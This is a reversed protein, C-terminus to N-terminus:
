TPPGTALVMSLYEEQDDKEAGDHAAMHRPPAAVAAFQHPPHQRTSLWNRWQIRAARYATIRTTKEQDLRHRDAINDLTLETPAVHGHTRTILGVRALEALTDYVTSPATHAAAVLDAPRRISTRTLLEYIRRHHQGLVTWAPHVDTVLPRGPEDPTPDTVDPTTLAYRDAYLGTGKGILLIPAGPTDRLRRLVAWVTSESLLGAALSLSRGGVAVVPVGDILSGARAASVALAQLVAATAARQPHSRHTTDCWATAHALWHRHRRDGYTGGTHQKKHTCSHFRPINEAIWRQAKTWDREVAQHARPGYHTYATALGTHWRGGPQILAHVDTLTYGRWLAHILVSQRAESRSRWRRDPPLAATEAFTAVPAPLPDHRQFDARLHRQPGPGAFYHDDPRTHASPPPTTLAFHATLTTLFHPASREAFDAM